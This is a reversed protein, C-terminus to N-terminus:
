SSVDEPHQQQQEHRSSSVHELPDALLAKTSGEPQPHKMFLSPLLAENLKKVPRPRKLSPYSDATGDTRMGGKRAPHSSLLRIMVRRRILHKLCILDQM